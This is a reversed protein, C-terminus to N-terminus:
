VTEEYFVDLKKAHGKGTVPQLFDDTFILANVKELVVPVVETITMNKM